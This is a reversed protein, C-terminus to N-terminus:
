DYSRAYTVSFVYAGSPMTSERLMVKLRSREDLRVQGLWYLEAATEPASPSSTISDFANAKLELAAAENKPSVTIQLVALQDNTTYGLSVGTFREFTTALWGDDLPERRSLHDHVVDYAVDAPEGPAGHVPDAAASILVLNWDRSGYSGVESVSGSGDFVEEVMSELEAWSGKVALDAERRIAALTSAWGASFSKRFDAFILGAIESPPEVDGRIVPIVRCHGEVM